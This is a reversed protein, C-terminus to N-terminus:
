PSRPSNTSAIRTSPGSTTPPGHRTWRRRSIEAGPRWGGPSTRRSPAETIRRPAELARIRHRPVSSDGALRRLRGLQIRQDATDGLSVAWWARILLAPVQVSDMLFVREAAERGGPQPPGLQWGQARRYYELNVNALYDLPDIQLIRQTAEIAAAGDTRVSALNARLRLRTRENPSEAYPEARELLELLGIYQQGQSSLLWSKISVAEVLAIAFTSDLAIARDIAVNASDFLGRRMAEKAALYAKMAEPSQTVDFGLEAPLDRPRLPGWVETLTLLAAERVADSLGSTEAQISSVGIPESRGTQYLRLALEV